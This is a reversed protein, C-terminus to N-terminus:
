QLGVHCNYPKKDFGAGDGDDIDMAISYFNDSQFTELGAGLYLTIHGTWRDYTSIDAQAIKKNPSFEIDYTLWDDVAIPFQQINSFILQGSGANIDFLVRDDSSVCDFSYITAFSSQSAMLLITILLNKM